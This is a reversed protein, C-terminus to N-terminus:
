LSGLFGSRVGRILYLQCSVAARDIMTVVGSVSSSEGQRHVHLLLCHDPGASPRHSCHYRGVAM